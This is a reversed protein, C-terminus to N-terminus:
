DATPRGFVQVYYPRGRADVAHGTGIDTYKPSLMNARHGPSDMWRKVTRAADPSGSAVNEAYASWRYGAAALRDKATPQPADDVVHALRRARAMQDAQIQAAQMLRDNPKLEPVGARAREVNTAQVLERVPSRADGQSWALPATLLVALLSAILALSAPRVGSHRPGPTM